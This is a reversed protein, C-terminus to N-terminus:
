FYIVLSVSIIILTLSPIQLDIRKDTSFLECNVVNDLSTTLINV